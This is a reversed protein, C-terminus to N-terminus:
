ATSSSWRPFTSSPPTSASSGTWSTSTPRSPSSCRSAANVKAADLVAVRRQIVGAEELKQIRRWCPTTSLGSRAQRHRGRAHTCDQQLIDLIKLDMQRAHSVQRVNKTFRAHTLNLKGICTSRSGGLLINKQVRCSNKAARSCSIFRAAFCRCFSTRSGHIARRVVRQQAVLSAAAAPHATAEQAAPAQALRAHNGPSKSGDRLRSALAACLVGVALVLELQPLRDFLSAIGSSTRMRDRRCTAAKDDQGPFCFGMPVIAVRAEDYFEQPSVGLWDRLRDGSAIPSPFARPHVRTGPAQSCVALRATRSVRLVPRPEHPLPRRDPAEVCRRCARINALLRDLEPAEARM